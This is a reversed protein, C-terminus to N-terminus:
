RQAARLLRAFASTTAQTVAAFLEAFPAMKAAQGYVLCVPHDALVVPAVAVQGPDPHGLARWLRHDMEAGAPTEILLARRERAAAGLVTQASLPIALEELVPDDIGAIFGKWGIAVEERIVFLIGATLAGGGFSQLTSAALEGVRDRSLGRRIARAAEALTTPAPTEVPAEARVVDGPRLSVKRLAIRGLTPAAPVTQRDITEVFRRLEEGGLMLPHDVPAPTVEDDDDPARRDRAAPRATDARRRPEVTRPLAPAQSDLVPDSGRPVDIVHEIPTEELHFGPGPEFPEVGGSPGLGVDDDAHVLAPRTFGATTAREDARPSSADMAADLDFEADSDASDAAPAFRGTTDEFPRYTGTSDPEADAADGDTHTHEWPERDDALARLRAPTPTPDIFDSPSERSHRVRLFRTSRPIDYCRELFYLIRLEACCAPVLSEFDLRMARELDRLTTPPLPDRCAIMVRDSGDALFGIPVVLHMAAMAAPLRALLGPDCREFHRRMAPPLQHRRALGISIQDLEVHGLEVLNTGLRAGNIVQARLGEELQAPGIVGAAVLLEGLRPM